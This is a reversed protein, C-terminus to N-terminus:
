YGHATSVRNQLAKRSRLRVLNRFFLDLSMDIYRDHDDSSCHPTLIANPAGWMPDDAPLPEPDFVDLVASLRGRQLEDRLAAYDVLGARGINVIGALDPLLALERAGILNRTQPTLPAALLLFDARPLLDHLADPTHIEDVHATKRGSRRVGIVHLGLRRAWRAAGTGMNGLGIVLLTKGSISSTFIPDWRSARQAELLRPLRSNLLLLAMLAYEQSKQGHIGRSNTLVTHRPLWDLPLLHDVGAGSLHIWKLHRGHRAIIERDFKWGFLADAREVASTFNKGDAGISIEIDGGAVGHKALHPRLRESTVEFVPGLSSVNEFHVRTPAPSSRSATHDVAM